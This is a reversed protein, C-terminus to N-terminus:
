VAPLFRVVVPSSNRRVAYAGAFAHRSYPGQRSGRENKAQVPFNKICVCLKPTSPRGSRQPRVYSEGNNKIDKFLLTWCRKKSGPMIVASTSASMNMAAVSKAMRRNRPMRAHGHSHITSRKLHYGTRTRGRVVSRFVCVIRPDLGLARCGCRLSCVAQIKGLLSTHTQPQQTAPLSTHRHLEGCLLRIAHLLASLTCCCGVCMAVPPQSTTAATTTDWGERGVFQDCSREERITHRALGPAM